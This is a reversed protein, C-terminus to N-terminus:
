LEYALFYSTVGVTVGGVRGMGQETLKNTHLQKYNTHVEQVHINCHLHVLARQSDRAEPFSGSTVELEVLYSNTIYIV